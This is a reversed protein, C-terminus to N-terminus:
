WSLYTAWEDDGGGRYPRIHGWGVLLHIMLCGGGKGWGILLDATDQSRGEGQALFVSTVM